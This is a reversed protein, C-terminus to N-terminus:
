RVRVPVGALRDAGAARVLWAIARNDLRVCGHSAATGLPDRLSAGGRGHLGVRGDGDGFEQLVRSHATLPLVYAGLFAGPDARWVDLIAFLGTPTPTGPAGVVVRFRRVLHGGRHVTLTRAARSVTLRWPTPELQVRDADIWAAAANPRDPLRVRLRCRDDDDRRARLVLLWSAQRPTIAGRGRADPAPALPTRAILRARWAVDAAPAGVTTATARGPGCAPAALAPSAAIALTALATGLAAPWRAASM